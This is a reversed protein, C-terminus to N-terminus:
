DLDACACRCVHVDITWVCTQLARDSERREKERTQMSLDSVPIWCGLSSYFLCHGSGYHVMTVTGQLDLTPCAKQSLCRLSFVTSPFSFNQKVKSNRCTKIQWLTPSSFSKLKMLVDSCSSWYVTFPSKSRWVRCAPRRMWFLFFCVFFLVFFFFVLSLNNSLAAARRRGSLYASSAGGHQLFVTLFSGFEKWRPM